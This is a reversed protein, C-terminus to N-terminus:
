LRTVTVVAEGVNNRYVVDHLWPLALVADNV